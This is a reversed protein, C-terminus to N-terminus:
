VMLEYTARLHEGALPAFYNLTIENPGTQLFGDDPHLAQGNYYLIIHDPKYNYTTYFVKNSGNITGSITDSVVDGLDIKRLTIM